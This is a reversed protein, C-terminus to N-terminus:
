CAGDSFLCPLKSPRMGPKQVGDIIPVMAISALLPLAGHDVRMRVDIHQQRVDNRLAHTTVFGTPLTSTM